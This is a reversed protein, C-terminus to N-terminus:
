APTPLWRMPGTVDSVMLDMPAAVVETGEKPVAQRTMQTVVCGECTEMQPDDLTFGKVVNAASKMRETSPHGLRQHWLVAENDEQGAASFASGETRLVKGNLRYLNGPKGGTAVVEGSSLRIICGRKNFSTEM